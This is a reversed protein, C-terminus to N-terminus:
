PTEKRIERKVKQRERKKNPEPPVLDTDCVCWHMARKQGYPIRKPKRHGKEHRSM